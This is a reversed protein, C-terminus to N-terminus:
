FPVALNAKVSTAIVNNDLGLGFVEGHLGIGIGSNSVFDLGTEIRASLGDLVTQGVIDGSSFRFEGAAGIFPTLTGGESTFNKSFKVGTSLRGYNIARAAHAVALSDTYGDQWEWTGTARLNPEVILGNGFESRHSFGGSLVLRTADFDGTAGANSVDYGIMAGHVQGDFRLGNGLDGGAYGGLSFGDGDLIGGIADQYDFNEYGAVLGAVMGNGFIGTVGLLGNLHDGDLVTSSLNTYRLNAWFRVNSDSITPVDAVPNVGPAYVMSMQSDSGNLLQVNGSIANSVEQGVTDTILDTSVAGAAASGADQMVGLEGSATNQLEPQPEPEPEPEVVAPETVTHVIESSLGQALSCGDFTGGLYQAQVRTDGLPLDSTSLTAVGDVLAVQGIPQATSMNMFLVNGSVPPAMAINSSAETSKKRSLEIVREVINVSATFVVPQGLETSASDQAVTTTTPIVCVEQALSPTINALVAFVLGAIWLKLLKM